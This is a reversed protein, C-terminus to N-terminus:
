ASRRASAVSRPEVDQGAPNPAANAAIRDGTVIGDLCSTAFLTRMMIM